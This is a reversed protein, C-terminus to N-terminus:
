GLGCQAGLVRSTGLFMATDAEVLWPAVKSVVAWAGSDWPHPELGAAREGGGPCLLGGWWFGGEGPSSCLGSEALSHGECVALLGETQLM